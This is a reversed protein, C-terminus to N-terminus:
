RSENLTAALMEPDDCGIVLADYETAELHVIIGRPRGPHVVVFAKEAGHRMTGVVLVGPIRAGTRIGRVADLADELVDIDRVCTIPMRIDGPHVAQLKEMNTLSLVLENGQVTLNAM